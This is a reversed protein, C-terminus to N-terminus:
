FKRSKYHSTVKRLTKRISQITHQIMCQIARQGKEATARTPKGTHTRHTLKSFPLYRLMERDVERTQDRIQKQRVVKSQLYLVCSTEFEDAHSMSSLDQFISSKLVPEWIDLSLTILKPLNLNLDQVIPTLIFNGGHGNLLVFQSFGDHHLSAAIDQIVSVLTQNRLWVTGRSGRHMHSISFPLAPLCYAKLKEAVRQAVAEVILTDTALPLHDSHQETAGIPLIAMRIRSRKIETTTNLFTFM